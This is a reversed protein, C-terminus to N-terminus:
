TAETVSSLPHANRTSHYQRPFVSTPRNPSFGPGPEFGHLNTHSQRQVARQKSLNKGHMTTEQQGYCPIVTEYELRNYGERRAFARIVSMLSRGTREVDKAM